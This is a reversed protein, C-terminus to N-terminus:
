YWWDLLAQTIHGVPIISLASMLPEDTVVGM